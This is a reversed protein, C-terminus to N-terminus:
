LLSGDEEGVPDSFRFQQFQGLGDEGSTRSRNIMQDIREPANQLLEDARAQDIKGEALAAAVREEIQSLLFAALEAASVGNAEAIQALSQGDQKAMIVDQSTLGLFEAIQEVHMGHGPGHRRGHGGGFLRGEGSEIRERIRTAEEETLDGAAVREDVLELQTQQVTATLEEPSIGLNEALRSLFNSVPRAPDGDTQAAVIGVVTGALMVGALVVIGLKWLKM